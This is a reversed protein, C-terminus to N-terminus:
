HDDHFYTSFDNWHFLSCVCLFPLLTPLFSSLACCPCQSFGRQGTAQQSPVSHDRTHGGAGRVASQEAELCWWSLLDSLLHFGCDVRSDQMEHFEKAERSPSM